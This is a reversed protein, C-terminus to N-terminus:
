TTEDKSKRLDFWVDVLGAIALFIIGYAQILVLMYIFLRFARPVSWKRLLNALVAAGQFFYLTGCVLAGNLCVKNIFPVPVMLGLGSAILLWVLQDPLRWQGYPQWPSLGAQNKKILMDGLLLNIWVTCLATILVIAPFIIPIINRIRSFAFEIQALTEPAIDSSEQYVSYTSAISADITELIHKYPHVHEIVGFVVAGVVWISTLAFTGTAGARIVSEKKQVSRALVYGLPMFSISLLITSLSGFFLTCISAVIVSKTMIATSKPEGTTLLIYFVPLPIFTRIWGLEGSIAPLFLVLSTITIKM